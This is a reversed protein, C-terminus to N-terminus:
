INSTFCVPIIIQLFFTYQNREIEYSIEIESVMMNGNINDTIMPNTRDEVLEDIKFHFSISFLLLFFSTSLMVRNTTDDNESLM